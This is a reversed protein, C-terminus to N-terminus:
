LHRQDLAIAVLAMAYPSRQDFRHYNFFDRAQNLNNRLIHYTGNIVIQDLERLLHQMGEHRIITRQDGQNYGLLLLQDMTKRLSFAQYDLMDAFPLTRPDDIVFIPICGGCLARTAQSTSVTDGPVVLCFKSTFFGRQYDDLTMETAAFVDTRNLQDLAQFLDHRWQPFRQSHDRGCGFLLRTRDDTAEDDDDDDGIPLHIPCHELEVSIPIIVDGIAYTVSDDIRLGRANMLPNNWKPRMLPHPVIWFVRKDIRFPPRDTQFQLIGEVDSTTPVKYNGKNEPMLTANFPVPLSNNTFFCAPIFLLSDDQPPLISVNDRHLAEGVASFAETDELSWHEVHPYFDGQLFRVFGTEQLVENM